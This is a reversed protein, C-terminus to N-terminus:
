LLEAVTCSLAAALKALTKQTPNGQGAEYLAIKSRAVGALKALQHQTLGRDKRLQKIM